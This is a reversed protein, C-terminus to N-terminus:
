QNMRRRRLQASVIDCILKEDPTLHSQQHRSYGLLYTLMGPPLTNIRSQSSREHCGMAAIEEILREDVKTTVLTLLEEIEKETGYIHQACFRACEEADRGTEDRVRIDAGYLLLLKVAKLNDACIASHLATCHKVPCVRELASMRPDKHRMAELILTVAGMSINYEEVATIIFPTQYYHDVDSGYKFLLRLLEEFEREEWHLNVVMGHSDFLYDMATSGNHATISPNAGNMLLLKVMPLIETRNSKYCAISIPTVGNRAARNVGAGRDLLFQVVTLHGKQVATMLANWGSNPPAADVSIGLDLMDQMGAIDHRSASKILSRVNRHIEDEVYPIEM